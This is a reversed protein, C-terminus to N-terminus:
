NSFFNELTEIEQMPITSASSLRNMDENFFVVNEGDTGVYLSYGDNDFIAGSFVEMDVSCVIEYCTPNELYDSLDKKTKTEVIQADVMSIEYTGKIYDQHRRSMCYFRGDELFFYDIQGSTWATNEFDMEHLEPEEGEVTLTLTAPECRRASITVTTKGEEIGTFVLTGNQKVEVAAYPRDMTITLQPNKLEAYNEIKVSADEEVTFRLRTKSLQIIKEGGLIGELLLVLIVVVAVVLVILFSMLAILGGNKKEKKEKKEKKKKVKDKKKTKGEAVKGADTEPAKNEETSEVANEPAKNAGTSEAAKESAEGTSDEALEASVLDIEKNKEEM